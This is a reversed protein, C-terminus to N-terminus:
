KISKFIKYVEEYTINSCFVQTLINNKYYMINYLKKNTETNPMSVIYADVGNLIIPEEFSVDGGFKVIYDKPDENDELFTYLIQAQKYDMSSALNWSFSFSICPKESINHRVEYLEAGDPLYTPAETEFGFETCIKKIGFADNDESMSHEHTDDSTDNENFRVFFIFPIILALAIVSAIFLNKM